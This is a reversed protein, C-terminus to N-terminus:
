QTDTNTDTIIHALGDLLLKYSEHVSLLEEKQKLSAQLEANEITLKSVSERLLVNENYLNKCSESFQRAADLETRAAELEALDDKRILVVDTEAFLEAISINLAKAVNTTTVVSAQYEPHDLMRSITKESTKAKEALKKRTLGSSDFAKNLREFYM